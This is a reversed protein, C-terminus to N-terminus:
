LSSAQDSVLSRLDRFDNMVCCRLECVLQLQAPTGCTTMVCCRSKVPKGRAYLVDIAFVATANTANPVSVMRTRAGEVGEQKQQRLPIQNAEWRRVVVVCHASAQQVAASCPM